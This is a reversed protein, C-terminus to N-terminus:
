RFVVNASRLKVFERIYISFLIPLTLGNLRNLSLARRLDLHLLASAGRLVGCGYCDRGSILRFLCFSGHTNGSYCDINWIFLPIFLLLLLRANDELWRIATEM